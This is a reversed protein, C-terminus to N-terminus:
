LKKTLPVASPEAVLVDGEEEEQWTLPVEVLPHVKVPVTDPDLQVPFKVEGLQEPINVQFGPEVPPNFPVKLPIVQAGPVLRVPGTVSVGVVLVPPVPPVQVAPAPVATALQAYLKGDVDPTGVASGPAPKLLRSKLRNVACVQVHDTLAMSLQIVITWGGGFVVM